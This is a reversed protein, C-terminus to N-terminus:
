GSFARCEALMRAAEQRVLSAQTESPPAIHGEGWNGLVLRYRPEDVEETPLGLQQAFPLFHIGFHHDTVNQVYVIRPLPDARRLVAGRVVRQLVDHAEEDDVTGWALDTYKRVSSWTFKAIEVQPNIAVAVDQERAYTLAAFGGGSCGWLLRRSTGLLRDLHDMIRPLEDNLNCHLNGAYWALSLGGGLYLSPDGIRVSNITQPPLNGGQFFPLSTKKSQNSHFAYFTVPASRSRILLPIEVPGYAICYLGSHITELEFFEPASLRAALGGWKLYDIEVDRDDAPTM